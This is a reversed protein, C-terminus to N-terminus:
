IIIVLMIILNINSLIILINIYNIYFTSLGAMSRFDPFKWGQGESCIIDPDSCLLYVAAQIGWSLAWLSTLRSFYHNGLRGPVLFPNWLLCNKWLGPKSPITQPHNLHMINITCKIEIKIVDAGGWIMLCWIGSAPSGQELTSKARLHLAPTGETKMPAAEKRERNEWIGPRM